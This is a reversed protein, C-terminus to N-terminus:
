RSGGPWQKACFNRKRSSDMTEKRNQGEERFQFLIDVHTIFLFSRIECPKFTSIVTFSGLNGDYGWRDSLNHKIKMFSVSQLAILLSPDLGKRPPDVVIVDSGM